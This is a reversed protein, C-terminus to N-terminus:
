AQHQVSELAASICTNLSPKIDVSNLIDSIIRLLLNTVSINIYM